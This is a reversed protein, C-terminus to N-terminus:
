LRHVKVAACGERSGRECRQTEVRAVQEHVGPIKPDGDTKQKERCKIKEDNDAHKGPVDDVVMAIFMEKIRLRHLILSPIYNCSPVGYVREQAFFARPVAGSSRERHVCNM